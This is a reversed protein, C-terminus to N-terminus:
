AQRIQLRVWDSVTLGDHKSVTEVMRRDADDLRIAM